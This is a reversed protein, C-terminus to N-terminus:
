VANRACSCTSQNSSNRRDQMNLCEV